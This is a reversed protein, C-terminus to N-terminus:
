EDHLMLLIEVMFAEVCAMFNVNVAFLAAKDELSHIVKQFFKVHALNKEFFEAAATEIRLLLIQSIKRRRSSEVDGDGESVIEDALEASLTELQSLLMYMQMVASNKERCSTEFLASLWAWYGAIWNKIKQHELLRHAFPLRTISCRGCITPLLAYERSTTLFIITDAPPEELTKLFANAAASHMREACCVVAVKAACVKPSLYIKSRLDRVQDVSIQAMPGVPSIRLFDVCSEPNQVALIERALAVAVADCIEVNKCVLLNSNPLRRREIADLLARFEGSSEISFFDVPSNM